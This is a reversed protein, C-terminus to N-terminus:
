SSTEGEALTSRFSWVKKVLIWTGLILIFCFFGYLFLIASKPSRYDSLYIGCPNTRGFDVNVIQKHRLKNGISKRIAISCEIDQNLYSNRYSIFFLFPEQTGQNQIDIIRGVATRKSSLFIATNVWKTTVFVTLAAVAVTCIILFYKNEM